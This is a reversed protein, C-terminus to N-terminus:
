ARFSFEPQSTFFASTYLMFFEAFVVHVVASLDHAFLWPAIGPNEQEIFTLWYVSTRTFIPAALPYASYILLYMALWAVIIWDLNTRTTSPTWVKYGAFALLMATNLM